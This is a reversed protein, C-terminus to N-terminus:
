PDQHQSGHRLQHLSAELIERPPFHRIARDEEEEKMRVRICIARRSKMPSELKVKVTQEGRFETKGAIAEGFKEGLVQVIQPATM